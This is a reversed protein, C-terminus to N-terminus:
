RRRRAALLAVGGVCALTSPVPVIQLSAGDIISAQGAAPPSGFTGSLFLSQSTLLAVYSGPQLTQEEGALSAIIFGTNPIVQGSGDVARVSPLTFNSSADQGSSSGSLLSTRAAIVTIPSFVDFRIEVRARAQQGVEPYDDPEFSDLVECQISTQDTWSLLTGDWSTTASASGSIRISGAGGSGGQITSTFEGNRSVTGFAVPELVEQMSQPYNLTIRQSIVQLPQAIATSCLAATAAITITHLM